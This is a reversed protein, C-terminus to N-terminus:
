ERGRAIRAAITGAGLGDDIGVVALGAACSALMANLATTGGHASGYGVSTPVGIVPGRALGGVLSALAGDMGAVVVVCDARELDPLASALRHVGAVGVDEHVVVTTGLLQARITAERVVPGDSTGASVVAVLGRPEPVSRAIWVCRALADEEAEPVVDHVAARAEDDARTALVSGAGGELLALFIRSVQEPTKGEALIAEPAGQRLERHLDVRAFGLDRYPLEALRELADDPSTEGTRVGELLDRLEDRLGGV